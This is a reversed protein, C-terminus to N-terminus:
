SRFVTPHSYAATTGTGASQFIQTGSHILTTPLYYFPTWSDAIIFEM